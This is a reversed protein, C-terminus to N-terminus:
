RQLIIVDTMLSTNQPLTTTHVYDVENFLPAEFVFSHTHHYAQTPSFPLTCTSSGHFSLLFSMCKTISRTANRALLRATRTSMKASSKAKREVAMTAIITTTEVM